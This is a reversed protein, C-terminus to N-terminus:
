YPYHIVLGVRPAQKKSFKLSPECLCSKMLTEKLGNTIAYKTFPLFPIFSVIQVRYFAQNNYNLLHAKLTSFCGVDNKWLLGSKSHL